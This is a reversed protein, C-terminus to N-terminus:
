QPLATLSTPTRQEQLEDLTNFRSVTAAFHQVKIFGEKSYYTASWCVLVFQNGHGSAVARAKEDGSLESFEVAYAAIDNPKLLVPSATAAGSASNM